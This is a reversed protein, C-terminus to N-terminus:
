EYRLAEAPQTASARWAPYITALLSLLLSVTGISLVDLWRLDSPLESLFYVEPSIFPLGRLEELFAVVVQVNLALLVGGVVGLLAGVTGILMGQIIFIGVISAPTSGMTRLIAIDSQKDKVVMVLTSILNFAAVAVILVLIFFMMRKQHQLVAFYNAQERTWNSVWYGTPLSAGIERAVLPALLLDHLRLRIGSVGGELKFLDSGDELQVLALGSDYQHFDVKFLGVVTFRTFTPSIGSGTVTQSAILRVPDGLGVGLEDALTQGLVIGYEGPKLAELRGKKMFDALQSVQTELEPLIGRVLLGKVERGRSALAQGVVFPAASAVDSLAELEPILAPWDQLAGYRSIISVHATMGLVRARVEKEFGNMVSLVTILAAVGLAIGLISAWAIFSIFHNSRKARLYRLAISVELLM